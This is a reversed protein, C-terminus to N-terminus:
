DSLRDVTSDDRLKPKSCVVETTLISSDSRQILRHKHKRVFHGKVEGSSHCADTYLVCSVSDVESPLHLLIQCFNQSYDFVSCSALSVCVCLASV